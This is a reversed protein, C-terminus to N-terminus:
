PSAAASVCRDSHTAASVTAFPDQRRRPPSAIQRCPDCRSVYHRPRSAAVGRLPRLPLRLQSSPERRRRPPSASPGYARCASLGPSFSAAQVCAGDGGLLGRGAELLEGGLAPRHLRPRLAEEVLAPRLRFRAERVRAAELADRAQAVAPALLLARRAAERSEAGLPEVVPQATREGRTNRRRIAAVGAPASMSHFRTAAVGRGRRPSEASVLRPSM